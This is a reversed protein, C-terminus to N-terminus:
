DSYAKLFNRFGTEYMTKGGAYQTTLERDNGVAFRWVWSASNTQPAYDDAFEIVFGARILQIMEYSEEDRLNKVKLVKDQYVPIVMEHGAVTLAETITGSFSVDKVDVPITLMTRDEACVSYYMDQEEDYKPYPLIGFDAEMNRLDTAVFMRTAYFLAENNAFKSAGTEWGAPFPVKHGLLVDDNDFIFDRMMNCADVAKETVLNLEVMGDETPQTFVIDFSSHHAHLHTDNPYLVGFRDGEDVRNDQNLDLYIGKSMEAMKEFTWKGDRVLQYPDELDFAALLPKSFMYVYMYEWISTSIDGAMAYLKDNVTLSNKAVPSWWPSDLQLEPVELLNYFSNNAYCAGIILAAGDILDYDGDGAMISQSLTNIYSVQDLWGGAILIHNININYKNEVAADRYVVAENLVDGTAEEDGLEPALRDEQDERVLFNFDRGGYDVTEMQELLSREDTLADTTTDSGETTRAPLKTEGDGCSVSALLQVCLLAMCLLSGTKKM